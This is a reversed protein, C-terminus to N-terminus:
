FLTNTLSGDTTSNATKYAKSANIFCCRKHVPFLIHHILQLKLSKNLLKYRLQYWDAFKSQDKRAYEEQKGREETMLIRCFEIFDEANNNKKIETFNEEKRKKKTRNIPLRRFMPNIMTVARTGMIKM